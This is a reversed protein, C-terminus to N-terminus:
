SALAAVNITQVLTSCEAGIGLGEYENRGRTIEVLLKASIYAVSLAHKGPPRRPNVDIKDPDDRFLRLGFVGGHAAASCHRYFDAMGPVGFKEIVVSPSSWEPSFWYARDKEGYARVADPRQSPPLLAIRDRVQKRMRQKNAVPFQPDRNLRRFNAYLYKFASLPPSTSNLIALLSVTLDLLTRLLASAPSSWGTFVLQGIAQHIAIADHSL